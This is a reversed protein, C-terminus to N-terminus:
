FALLNLYDGPEDVWGSAQAEEKKRVRQDKVTKERPGRGLADCPACCRRPPFIPRCPERAPDLMRWVRYTSHANPPRRFVASTAASASRTYSSLPYRGNRFGVYVPIIEEKGDTAIYNEM